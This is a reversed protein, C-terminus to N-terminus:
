DEELFETKSKALEEVRRDIIEDLGNSIKTLCEFFVVREEHTTVLALDALILLIEDSIQKGVTMGKETLALRNKYKSDKAARMQVYGDQELTKLARSIASKDEECKECLEGATMPGGIYLYYLCSVHSSRLGHIDMEITKIKRISKTIRIILTSFQEFRNHMM